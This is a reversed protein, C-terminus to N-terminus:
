EWIVELDGVLVTSSLAARPLCLLNLYADDYIRPLDMNIDFCKKEYTATTEYICFSMLPKVLVLAFLGVDPGNMYVSEISRVGSDGAQLGIFPNGSQNRSGSSSTIIQGNATSTNMVVTQSTRSAVGDSNTYVFYFSQGGVGANTLVAMVQVGTGTTYRPITTVNTLDQRSTESMDIFPYFMLYDCLFFTAPLGGSTSTMGSISTLFKKSPSVSPGHELGKDTSRALATATLISGIYYQPPPMGPSMSLDFWQGATNSVSPSKRWVYRRVRGELHADVLTKRNYISM